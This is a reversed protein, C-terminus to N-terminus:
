DGGVGTSQSAGLLEGHVRAMGGDRQIRARLMRAVRNREVGSEELGMANAYARWVRMRDTTRLGVLDFRGLQVLNRRRARAGRGFGARRTREHDIFSVRPPERDCAVVVNFPTLDGHIFGARHLGAVQAGLAGLMARRAALTQRADRLWRPVMYGPARETMLLERGSSREIGYLLVRPVGIGARALAASIAAVHEARTGRLARKLAQVGRAPSLVKVFADPGTEGLRVLMTEGHRSRRVRRRAHGRAADVALELARERAAAGALALRHTYLTWGGREAMEYGPVMM